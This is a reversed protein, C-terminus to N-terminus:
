ENAACKKAAKEVFKDISPDRLQYKMIADYLAKAEPPCDRMRRTVKPLIKAGITLYCAKAVEAVREKVWPSDVGELTTLSTACEPPMVPEEAAEQEAVKALVTKVTEVLGVEKCVLEAAKQAAEDLKLALKKLEACAGAHAEKLKGDRIDTVKKLAAEHLKKLAEACAKVVPEATKVKDDLGAAECKELTGKFDKTALLDVIENVGKTVEADAQKTALEGCAAKFAETAKIEDSVGFRCKTDADELNGAAIASKIEAVKAAVEGEFKKNQAEECVKKFDPAEKIKKDFTKRCEDTAVAARGADVLDRIEKVKDAVKKADILAKGAECAKNFEASEKLEPRMIWDCKKKIAELDEAKVVAELEEVEKKVLMATLGDCADALEKYKELKDQKIACTAQASMVETEDGGSVAENIKVVEQAVQEAEICGQFAGCEEHEVCKLPGAFKPDDQSSECFGVALSRNNKLLEAEMGDSCKIRMDMLKDCPGGCGTGVLLSGLAAWVMMTAM